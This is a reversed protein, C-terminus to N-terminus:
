RVSSFASPRPSLCPRAKQLVLGLHQNERSSRLTSRAAQSGPWLAVPGGPGSSGEQSHGGGSGGEAPFPRSGPFLRMSM